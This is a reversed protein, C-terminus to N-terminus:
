ARRGPPQLQHKAPKRGAFHARVLEALECPEGLQDAHLYLGGSRDQKFLFHGVLWTQEARVSPEPPVTPEAALKAIWQGAAEDLARLRVPETEDIAGQRVLFAKVWSTGGARQVILWCFREADAVFRFPQADARRARELRDRAAAAREFDLEAAARAMAEQLGQMFEARQRGAFAVAQSVMQRYQELSISGDCAAPCRGMEFYACRQGHPVRELIEYKRCLDFLDELIQAFSASDNRTAFPGLYRTPLPRRYVHQTSVFRPLRETPDVQLFWCPGFGLLERYRRPYL